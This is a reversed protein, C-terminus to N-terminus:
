CGSTPKMNCTCLHIPIRAKANLFSHTAVDLAGIAAAATDTKKMRRVAEEFMDQSVSMFDYMVEWLAEQLQSPLFAQECWICMM